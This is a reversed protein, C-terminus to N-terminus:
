VSCCFLANAKSSIRWWFPSKHTLRLAPCPHIFGTSAMAQDRGGGALTRGGWFLCTQRTHGGRGWARSLGLSFSLTKPRHARGERPCHLNM